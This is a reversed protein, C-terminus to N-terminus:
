LVMMNHIHEVDENPIRGYVDDLYTWIDHVTEKYMIEKFMKDSLRQYLINTAQHEPHLLKEEAQTLDKRKEDLPRSFGVSLIWWLKAYIACCYYSM